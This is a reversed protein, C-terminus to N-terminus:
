VYPPRERCFTLEHEVQGLPENPVEPVAVVALNVVEEEQACRATQSVRVKAMVVGPHTVGDRTIQIPPLDDGVGEWLRDGAEVVQRGPGATNVADPFM